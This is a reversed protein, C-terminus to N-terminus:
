PLRLGVLNSPVSKYTRRDEAGESFPSHPDVFLVQAGSGKYFFCLQRHLGQVHLVLARTVNIPRQVSKMM